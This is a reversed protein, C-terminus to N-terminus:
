NGVERDAARSNQRTVGRSRRSWEALDDGGAGGLDPLVSAMIPGVSMMQMCRDSGSLIIRIRPYQGDGFRVIAPTPAFTFAESPLGAIVVEIAPSDEGFRAAASRSISSRSRRNSSLRM